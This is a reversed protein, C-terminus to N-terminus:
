ADTLLPHGVREEGALHSLSNTMALAIVASAVGGRGDRAREGRRPAAYGLGQHRCGGARVDQGQPDPPIRGEASGRWFGQSRDARERCAGEIRPEAGAARDRCQRGHRAVSRHPNRWLAASWGQPGLRHAAQIQRQDNESFGRGSLRLGVGDKGEGDCVEVLSNAYTWSLLQLFFTWVSMKTRVQASACLRVLHGICGTLALPPM